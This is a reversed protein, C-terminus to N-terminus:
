PSCLGEDCAETGICQNCRPDDLPRHIAVSEGSVDFLHQYWFQSGTSDDDQIVQGRVLIGDSGFGHAFGSAPEQEQWWVAWVQVRNLHCEGLEFRVQAPNARSCEGVHEIRERFDAAEERLVKGRTGITRRPHGM